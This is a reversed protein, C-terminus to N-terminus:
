NPIYLTGYKTRVPRGKRGSPTQPHTSSYIKKKRETKSTQRYSVYSADRLVKKIKSITQPSLWLEEGIKKYSKGAALKELAAARKVLNSKENSTVLAQLLKESKLIKQWCIEEWEKRSRCSKISPLSVTDKIYM